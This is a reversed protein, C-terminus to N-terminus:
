LEGDLHEPAALARSWKVSAIRWLPNLQQLDDIVGPIHAAGYTIYIKDHSDDVIRAALARNRFDLIVPDLPKQQHLDGGLALSLVGRCAVGALRKQTDTGDHHWEIFRPLFGDDGAANEANARVAAAFEPSTALLRDYEDKMEQTTVDATIHRAPDALSKQALLGFYDLQFVVDCVDALRKYNEGLDGGGALKEAFWRNGEPTSPQVGEYYLIYGDALANELDYVVSKYFTETGIHVMGQFVVKKTGDTLVVQPMTPPEIVVKWSLYYMPLATLASLVFVLAILSRVYANGFSGIAGFRNVLWAVPVAVLVALLAVSVFVWITIGFVVPLSLLFMVGLLFWVVAAVSIEIREKFGVAM